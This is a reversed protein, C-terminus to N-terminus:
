RLLRSNQCHWASRKDGAHTYFWTPPAMVGCGTGMCERRSRAAIARARPQKLHYRVAQYAADGIEQKTAGEILRQLSEALRLDGPKGSARLDRLYEQVDIGPKADVADAMTKVLDDDLDVMRKQRAQILEARIKKRVVGALYNAPV